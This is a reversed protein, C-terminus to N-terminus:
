VVKLTGRKSKIEEVCNAIAEWALMACKVRASFKRVGELSVADGLEPLQDASREGRMLERFMACLKDVEEITKGRCLESMMSASAQSISCGQGQFAIEEIVSQNLKIGVNIQDGCLPNYLASDADPHTVCGRCRPRRFHDLIVEQYLDDISM